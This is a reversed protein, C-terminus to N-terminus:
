DNIEGKAESGLTVKLDLKVPCRLSISIPCYKELKSQLNKAKQVDEEEDVDASIVVDIATFRLGDPTKEMHGTATSRYSHIGIRLMEAFFLFTNMLCSGVSATFLQEPSWINPPGGFEPPAAVNITPNEQTQIIGKKKGQWVITTKYTYKQNDKAM